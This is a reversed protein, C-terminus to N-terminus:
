VKAKFLSLPEQQQLEQALKLALEEPIQRVLKGSKQDVVDIVTRGTAKDVSFKLDRRHSQVYDNLKKIAASVDSGKGSNGSSSGNANSDANANQTSAAAHFVKPEGSSFQAAQTSAADSATAPASPTVSPKVVSSQGPGASVPLKLNIPPINAESM